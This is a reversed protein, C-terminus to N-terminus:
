EILVDIAKLIVGWAKSGSHIMDFHGAGPVVKVTQKADLSQALPVITDKDGHILVTHPHFGQKMPNALNYEASKESYTGGMFAPTATQCDNKGLAYKEVDSIAALGIVGKIPNKDAKKNGEKNVYHQGALLALHGGASHGMLIIEDTNLNYSKLQQVYDIGQLIDKFSGPWAGGVDGTRRYELSWVAFGAQSLAHTAAHAHKIDYANLWCGGHIFVLLPGTVHMKGPPLWLEGYQLADDGYSIKKAPAGQPLKLVSPYSVNTLAQAQAQDASQALASLICCSIALIARLYDITKM